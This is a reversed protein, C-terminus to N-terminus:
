PTMVPILQSFVEESVELEVVWLDSDFRVEREIRGTVDLDNSIAAIEVFLRESPRAEDYGIQPAPLYLRVQGSRDRRVIMIAGAEAAGRREVAAFGGDAFARRVVASVWLETTVRLIAGILVASRDNLKALWAKVRQKVCIRGRFRNRNGPSM